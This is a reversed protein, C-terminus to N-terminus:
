TVYQADIDYSDTHPSGVFCKSVAIASFAQLGLNAVVDSEM